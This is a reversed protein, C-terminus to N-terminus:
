DVRHDVTEVVVLTATEALHQQVWLDPHIEIFSSNLQVAEDVEDVNRNRYNTLNGLNHQPTFTM